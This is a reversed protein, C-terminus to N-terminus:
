ARFLNRAIFFANAPREALRRMFYPYWATGYPVYLRVRYGQDVLSQQLDRRVGYLMQFEFEHPQRGTKAIHALASDIMRPDHTALAPYAGEDLLYRSLKLYQEDVTSKAPYAVSAPENYAGKCLRIPVGAKSMRRADDETRYLYAQLVSRVCGYENQFHEVLNLTRDVYEHAEMDIEVRSGISAAKRVLLDVNRRCLDDGLDLGLQTLKISITAPLTSAAISDLASLCFDRSTDAEQRTAVNEGLHDLTALYRGAHLKHCVGIVDDLTQGPIFRATLKRAHSSTEMWHRLRRQRSLYLFSQRLM